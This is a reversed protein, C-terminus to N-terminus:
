TRQELNTKLNNKSEEKFHLYSSKVLFSILFITFHIFWCCNLGSTHFHFFLFNFIRTSSRLSYHCNIEISNNKSLTTLFLWCFKNALERRSRWWLALAQLLNRKRHSYSRLTSTDMRCFSFTPAQISKLCICDLMKDLARGFAFIYPLDTPLNEITKKFRVFNQM